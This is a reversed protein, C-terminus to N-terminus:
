AQIKSPNSQYLHLENSNCSTGIVNQIMLWKMVCQHEATPFNQWFENLEIFFDKELVVSDDPMIKLYGNM